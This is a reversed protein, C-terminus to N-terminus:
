SNFILTKIVVPVVRGGAAPEGIDLYDGSGAHIGDICLVKRSNELMVNLANGLVKAIDNEMVLILPHTKMKDKLVDALTAALEQIRVFDTHFNGSFSVAALGPEGNEGFMPLQAAISDRFTELNQEDQQEVRLVPVNKLPLCDSVYSITSGSVETTHSGAGVVTARITERAPYWPISGLSANRSIAEALLVGIDGFRFVDEGDAERMCEAVGGSFMIAGAKPSDTMEVGDNTYMKRHIGDPRSLHVAMALQEAMLDCVKSLKQVDAPDGVQIDIGHTRSLATIKPYIYDVVGDSVKILRGGIDLCATGRLSGKEFLAINSTGGGIDINVATIRKEESIRDAGAGKASLVSELDPGAVAVVFDGAMDSLAALVDDANKKRATEGTIIVAGTKLDAPTMGAAQYEVRVIEKLKEVDIDSQTSLPTFYIRSKYIVEKEVIGIRPVVYSSAQNEMTLRCFILQTTSTGVDIGVSYISERM